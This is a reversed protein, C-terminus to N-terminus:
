KEILWFKVPSSTQRKVSLMMIALFREYLHGSAISFVNIVTEEKDENKGFWGKWLSTETGELVDQAEMGKRKRVVPHITLGEWSDVIVSRTDSHEITLLEYVEDSRGKRIKFDWVGPGGKLQLYGLNSMTITDDIDEDQLSLVFQLGRPPYGSERDTAHGEVLLSELAFEALLNTNAPVASLKINDLDYISKKPRILWSEPVDMGLTLLLALPIRDFTTSTPVMQGDSTFSPQADFVFQYFRLLPLKDSEVFVYSVAYVDIFVSSLKSFRELISLIKQGISTFPRM